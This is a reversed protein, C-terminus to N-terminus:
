STENAPEKENWDNLIADNGLLARLADDVSRVIHAEGPWSGLFQVQESTFRDSGDPNKVEVLATRGRVCVLLDLPKGIIEVAVGVKRLAQVIAAQNGDTKAARRM